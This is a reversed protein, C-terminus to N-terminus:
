GAGWGAKTGDGVDLEERLGPAEAEDQLVKTRRNWAEDEITEEEEEEEVVEPVVDLTQLTLATLNPLPSPTPRNRYTSSHISQRGTQSPVPTPSLSTLPSSSPQRSLSLTSSRYRHSRSSYISPAPSLPSSATSISRPNLQTPPHSQPRSSTHQGAQSAQCGFRVQHNLLGRDNLVVEGCSCAILGSDTLEEQQFRDNRRRKNIRDLLAAHYKFCKTYIGPGSKTNRIM